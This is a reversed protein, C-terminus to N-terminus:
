SESRDGGWVPPTTLTEILQTMGQLAQHTNEALDLTARGLAIVEHRQNQGPQAHELKSVIRRLEAITTEDLPRLM